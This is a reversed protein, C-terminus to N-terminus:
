TKLGDMSLVSAPLVILVPLWAATLPMVHGGRGFATSAFTLVFVGIVLVVAIGISIFYNRDDRGAVFPLGLLLLLINLIPGTV